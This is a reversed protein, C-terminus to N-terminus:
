VSLPPEMSRSDPERGRRGVVSALARLISPALALLGGVLAGAIATSPAALDQTGSLVALTASCVVASWVIARSLDFALSRGRAVWPLAVAALAWVVAGLIVGSAILPWIVDDGASQLSGTWVGPARTGPARKVYLDAGALPGALLLWIWGTAGLAARRWANRARGAFAPWAGGLAVTGLGAAIAGLPWDTGARPLLLMPVLAGLLIVASSGSRQQVAGGAALAVAVILWGIRPLLLVLGGALVGATAPTLPSPALLHAALWATLLATTIAAVARPVWSAIRAPGTATADGPDPDGGPPRDLDIRHEPATRGTPKPWPSAVVGTTDDLQDLSVLLAARLGEIRGRERPRPRLALDVGRGLERPLDRRQRRLPPLHAALRRAGPAATTTRLPNVGTLSEYMVLALAYLDAPAGAERGAAQEPAMYAATGVVDGTRTLCDGGVVRAVGFDTLKAVQAPTPAEDPVLVNSPKVDRHVVGEAHAHSLADCLAIGITAIDRDSLRGDQLLDGFTRGRVLESVLYAGEDDVAAEYLMVIGPHALRAAARAEREFRGGLVRERPVIKVAVERDLREDRAQWVTAFGGAGLRRHLRYRGLVLMTESDSTRAGRDQTRARRLHAVPEREYSPKEVGPAQDRRM